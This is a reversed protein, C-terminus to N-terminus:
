WVVGGLYSVASLLPLFKVPVFPILLNVATLRRNGSLSRRPPIKRKAASTEVLERVAVRWTAACCGNRPSTDGKCGVGYAADSKVKGRCTVKPRCSVGFGGLTSRLVDAYGHDLNVGTRIMQWILIIIPTCLAAVFLYLLVRGTSNIASM